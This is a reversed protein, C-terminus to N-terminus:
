FSSAEIVPGVCKYINFTCEYNLVYKTNFSNDATQAHTHLLLAKGSCRAIALPPTNYSRSM